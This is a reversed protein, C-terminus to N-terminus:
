SSSCIWRRWILAGGDTSESLRAWKLVYSLDEMQELVDAKKRAALLGVQGDFILEQLKENFAKKDPIKELIQQVDEPRSAKMDEVRVGQLTRQRTMLTATNRLMLNQAMGMRHAEFLEAVCWARGFLDLNADVAIVETFNPDKRALFAMMDDFKNMECKISEGHENLPPDKNFFKPANCTCIPHPIKTVPDVDGNPNGGCISAHQNVSFACIWYTEQLRGQVQLIQEVVEVGEKDSLLKAILEFNHEGLADAIVSALLDRFLNQWNHTVMKKPIVKKGNNVFEAYSSCASSTRPIIGLRVVDNTTHVDPQFSPMIGVGLNSYFELVDSLSIGRCALEETKAEWDSGKIMGTDTDSDHRLHSRPCVQCGFRSPTWSLAPPRASGPLRFLRYAKSLLIVGAVNVVSNICQAVAFSIRPIHLGVLYGPDDDPTEFAESFAVQFLFFINGFQCPLWNRAM